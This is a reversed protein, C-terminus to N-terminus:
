FTPRSGTSAVNYLILRKKVARQLAVRITSHIYNVTRAGLGSNSKQTYLEDLREATLEKLKVHGVAPIIHKRTL